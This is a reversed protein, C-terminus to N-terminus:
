WQPTRGPATQTPPLRDQNGGKRKSAGLAM